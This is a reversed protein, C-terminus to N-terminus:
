SQVLRNVSVKQTCDNLWNTVQNSWEMKNQRLSHDAQKRGKRKDTKLVAATNIRNFGLNRREVFGVLPKQSVWIFLCLRYMVWFARSLGCGLKRRNKKSELKVKIVTAAEKSNRSCELCAGVEPDKCKSNGRSSITKSYGQAKGEDEKPKWKLSM